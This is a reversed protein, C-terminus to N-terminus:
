KKPRRVEFTGDSGLFRVFGGNLLWERADENGRLQAEWWAVSSACIERQFKADGRAVQRVSERRVRFCWTIETM